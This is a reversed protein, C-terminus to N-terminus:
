AQNCEPKVARSLFCACILLTDGGVWAKQVVPFTSGTVTESDFLAHDNIAANTRSKMWVLGGEGALDIGNTITQASNTGTYLHTSFVNEVNTVEGTAAPASALKKWGSM